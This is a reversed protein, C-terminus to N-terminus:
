KKKIAKAFFLEPEDQMKQVSFGATTLMTELDSASPLEDNQVAGGVQRHMNNLADRGIFHLIILVGNKKLSRAINKLAAAKDRFHPFANYCFVTHYARLAPPETCIDTLMFEAPISQKCAEAIMAPSFDSATVHGPHVQKCIWSTYQGPGCGLELVNHGPELALDTKMSEFRSLINEVAPNFEQWHPANRDFFAIRPDTTPATEKSHNTQNM